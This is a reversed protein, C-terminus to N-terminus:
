WNMCGKGNGYTCNDGDCKSSSDSCNSSTAGKDLEVYYRKTNSSDVCNYDISDYNKQLCAGVTANFVKTNCSCNKDYYKVSGDILKCENLSSKKSIAETNIDTCIVSSHKAACTSGNNKNDRKNCVVSKCSDTNATYNSGPCSCESHITKSGAWSDQLIKESGKVVLMKPSNPDAEKCEDATYWEGTLTEICQYHASHDADITLRANYKHGCASKIVSEISAEGIYSIAEGVDSFPGDDLKVWDGTLSTKLCLSRNPRYVGGANDQHEYCFEKGALDPNVLDGGCYKTADADQSTKATDYVRSDCYCQEYKVTGDELACYTKGIMDYQEGICRVEPTDYGEKCTCESVVKKTIYSDGGDSIKEICVAGSKETIGQNLGSADCNVTTGASCVCRPYLIDSEPTLQCSPVGQQNYDGDNCPLSFSDKCKCSTYLTEKDKYTYGDETATDPVLGRITCKSNTNVTKGEENPCDEVRVNYDSSCDCGKYFKTGNVKCYDTIYESPLKEGKDGGDSCAYQYEEQCECNTYYKVDVEKTIIEEKNTEENIIVEKRIEKVECYDGNSPAKIGKNNPDNVEDYACTYRYKSRDCECSSYVTNGFSGDAKLPTCKSGKTAKANSCSVYNTPCPCEKYLKNGNEDVCSDGLYAEDYGSCSYRFGNTLCNGSDKCQAYKVVEPRKLTGDDGYVAPSLCSGGDGTQASTCIKYTLEQYESCTDATNNCEEYYVTDSGDSNKQTCKEGTGGECNKWNSPCKCLYKVVQKGNEDKDVCPSYSEQNTDCATVHGATCQNDEPRACEKYYKVGELECYNGVGVEGEGCVKDYGNACVCSEYYTVTDRTCPNVGIQLPGSCTENALSNCADQSKCNKYYSVGKLNCPEGEGVQGAPCTKYDSPCTCAKYGGINGQNDQCSEGVPILPAECMETYEWTCENVTCQWYKKGCGNDKWVGTPKKGGACGYYNDTWNDPLPDPVCECSKYKGNCATGVGKYRGKDDDCIETYDASCECYPYFPLTDPTPTLSVLNATEAEKLSADNDILARDLEQQCPSGSLLGGCNFKHHKYASVCRCQNWYKVGNIILYEGSLNHRVGCNKTTWRFEGPDYYCNYARKYGQDRGYECLQASIATGYKSKCENETEAVFIEFNSTDVGSLEVKKGCEGLTKKVKCSGSKYYQKGSSMPTSGEGYKCWDSSSPEYPYDCPDSYISADCTVEWAPTGGEKTCAKKQAGSGYTTAIDSENGTFITRTSTESQCAAPKCASYYTIGNVKCVFANDAAIENNEKLCEKFSAPCYCPYMLTHNLSCYAQGGYGLQAGNGMQQVCMTQTPTQSDASIYTYANPLAVDNEESDDKHDLLDSCKVVCSGYKIKDFGDFDCTEGSGEAGVSTLDGIDVNSCTQSDGNVGSDDYYRSPCKCIVREGGNLDQCKYAYEGGVFRCDEEGYYLPKDTPCMRVYYAYKTLAGGIANDNAYDIWIDRKCKTVRGVYGATCDGVQVGETEANKICWDDLTKFDEPCSCIYSVSKDGSNTCQLAKGNEDKRVSSPYSDVNPCDYANDAYVSAYEHGCMINCSKYKVLNNGNEDRDYECRAGGPIEYSSSCNSIFDSPCLCMYGTTGTDYLCEDYYATSEGSVICDKKDSKVNGTCKLVFDEYKIKNEDVATGNVYADYMADTKCVKGKGIYDDCTYGIRIKDPNNECWEEKTTYGPKCSIADYRYIDEDPNKSYMKKDDDESALDEVIGLTTDKVNSKCISGGHKSVDECNTKFSTNAPEHTTQFYNCWEAVTKFKDVCKCGVYGSGTVGTDGVKTYTCELPNSNGAGNKANCFAEAETLGKYGKCFVKIDTKTVDATAEDGKYCQYNGIAFNSEYTASPDKYVFLASISTAYDYCRATNSRCYEFKSPSTVKCEIGGSYKGGTECSAKTQYGSPCTCSGYSVNTGDGWTCKTSEEGVGKDNACDSSLKTNQCGYWFYKITGNDNCPMNVSATLNSQIVTRYGEDEKEEKLISCSQYDSITVKYFGVCLRSSGCKVKCPVENAAGSSYVSYGTPCEVYNKAVDNTISCYVKTSSDAENVKCSGKTSMVSCNKGAQMGSTYTSDTVDQKSCLNVNEEFWTANELTTASGGYGICYKKSNFDTIDSTKVNQDLKYSLSAPCVQYELCSGDSFLCYKYACTVGNKPDCSYNIHCMETGEPCNSPDAANARTVPSGQPSSASRSAQVGYETQIIPTISAYCVPALSVVLVVAIALKKLQSM